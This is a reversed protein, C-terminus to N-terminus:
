EARQVGNNDVTYPEDLLLEGIPVITFGDGQLKELIIPLFDLVDESNNHFLIIDGSKVDDTVRQVIQDTGIDKWDLSDISWQIGEYGKEHLLSMLKNDYDGFPARFLTPTQSTLKTIKEQTEDIEQAMQEASLTPMNPHNTSHNGIEHGRAAIQITREPYADIWFGVLFFTTKVHYRDLIDLIEMTKESGWAAYFSIAIKKDDRDVRYVPVIRSESLAAVASYPRLSFVIGTLFFAAALCVALAAGATKMATNKSVIMAKM